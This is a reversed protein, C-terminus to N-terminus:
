DEITSGGIRDMRERLRGIVAQHIQSVRSECLKLTEGIERLSMSEYYYLILVQRETHSLGRMLFERLDSRQAARVPTDDHGDAVLELNIAHADNEQTTGIRVPPPVVENKLGHVEHMPMHLASSLQEDTPANGTSMEIQRIMEQLRQVRSRLMRPAWDLSRLHDLMAGRVRPGCYNEFPIGRSPDFTSIASRMGLIAAQALDDLEITAPMRSHMHRAIMQSLPMYHVLLRNRLGDDRSVRYAEWLAPLDLESSEPGTKRAAKRPITQLADLRNM